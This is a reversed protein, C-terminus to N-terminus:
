CVGGCFPCAKWQPQMAKGCHACSHATRVTVDVMGRAVQANAQLGERMLAAMEAQMKQMLQIQEAANRQAHAGDSAFKAALAKAVEPNKDAMAALM